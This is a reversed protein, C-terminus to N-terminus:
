LHGPGACLRHQGSRRGADRRSQLYRQSLAQSYNKDAAKQYYEVAKEESKEVGQGKSYLMGMNNLAGAHGKDAAKQYYELAKEYSQTVGQGNAYLIGINFLAQTSGKDAAKEYYGIAKEYSQTVGQGKSYMVGLNTMASANGQDAAMLYYKLAKAYDVEVGRGNYYMYGLDFQAAANGQEAKKLTEDLKSQADANPDTTPQPEPSPTPEKGPIPTPTGNKKWSDLIIKASSNGLDAAKRYHEAAKDFDQEVGHGDEYLVGINYWAQGYDKDAAAQYYELAKEYSKTVGEGKSYMLGINNLAQAYGQDAAKQYYELAKEYNKEVGQGNAYIVGINYQSEKSGKDAAKQYYELAKEYSQKVGYGYYYFVGMNTLAATNGQEAAAQLYKRAKELDAKVGMGKYYMYGLQAQAPAYGQEAAPEYRQLATLYDGQDYADTGQDYLQKVYEPSLVTSNKQGPIKIEPITGGRSFYVGAGAALACVLLVPVLWRLAKHKRPKSQLFTVLKEVVADFYEINVVIGNKWRVNDIDDPLKEPFSFKGHILPIINKNNKLACAIETRVWDGDNVCRDLANPSLILIFDTCNEIVSILEQNFAGNKLADTDFFVRYGRATLVDRLHKATMAGGERRYSIFIDYKKKKM